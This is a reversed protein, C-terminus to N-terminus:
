DSDYNPTGVLLDRAGDGNVDGLARIREGFTANAQAVPAPLEFVRHEPVPAQAQAAASSLAGVAAIGLLLRGM